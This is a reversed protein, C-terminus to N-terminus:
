PGVYAYAGIDFRSPNRTRGLVDVTPAYQPNGAGIAPSGTKLNFDFSATAPVFKVFLTAPDAVIFDSSDGSWNNDALYAINHDDVIGVNSLNIMPAINNRVYVNSSPADNYGNSFVGIWTHYLPSQNYLTNNAVVSDSLGYFTLGHYAAPSIVNNTATLNKVPCDFISIGQLHDQGEGTPIPPIITPYKNTSAIVVNRDILINHLDNSPGDIWGQIGDNHNGDALQGYHNTITNCTIMTNTSTFDIGDDSFCDISNGNLVINDGQMVVGYRVNSIRNNTITVSSGFCYIGRGVANSMWDQPTWDTVDPVSYLINNKFIINKVDSFYALGYYNYNQPITAPNTFIIGSFVWNQGNDIELLNMVPHNGPAAMITIFDTNQAASGSVRFSGHEGTMLYILDGAHVAGTTKNAGNILGAALAAQLTSWPRASSGDGNMSGKVPDIYFIHVPRKPVASGTVTPQFGLTQADAPSGSSVFLIAFLSYIATRTILKM